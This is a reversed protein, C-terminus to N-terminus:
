INVHLTLQKDQAIIGDGRVSSPCLVNERYSDIGSKQLVIYTRARSIASLSSDCYGDLTAPNQGAFTEHVANGFERGAPM